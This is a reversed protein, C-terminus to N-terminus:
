GVWLVLDVVFAVIAAAVAFAAVVAIAVVAVAVAFEFCVVAVLAVVVVAFGIGFRVGFGPHIGVLVLVVLRLRHGLVVVPGLVRRGRLPLGLWTQFGLIEGQPRLLPPGSRQPQTVEGWQSDFPAAAAGSAVPAPASVGAAPVLPPYHPHSHHQHQRHWHPAFVV